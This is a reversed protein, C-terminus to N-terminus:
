RCPFRDGSCTVSIKSLTGSVSLSADGVNVSNGCGYGSAGVNGCPCSLVSGDGYCYSQIDMPSVDFDFVDPFPHSRRAVLKASPPCQLM